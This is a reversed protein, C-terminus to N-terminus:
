LVLEMLRVDVKDKEENRETKMDRVIGISAFKIGFFYFHFEPNYIIDDKKEKYHTAEKNHCDVNYSIPPIDKLHLFDLDRCDRLGFSSLVASSDVCFDHKDDRDRIIAYYKEIYLDFNPTDAIKKNNLYHVSNENYISSAIRWTEEQTDNIHVSHKGVNCMSRIEDKLRVMNDINDEEVLTVYIDNGKSFCLAAKENVGPYGAIKSGIWAENHYLNHV